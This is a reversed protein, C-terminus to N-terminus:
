LKHTKILKDYLMEPSVYESETNEKGFNTFFCYHEIECFGNEDIPFWVQLLSIISRFLKDNNMLIDGVNDIEFAESVINKNSYDKLKQAMMNNIVSIFLEKKIM